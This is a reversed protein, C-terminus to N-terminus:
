DFPLSRAMDVMEGPRRVLNAFSSLIEACLESILTGVYVQKNGMVSPIVVLRPDSSTMDMQSNGDGEEFAYCRSALPFASEVPFYQELAAHFEALVSTLPTDPNSCDAIGIVGLPFHSM